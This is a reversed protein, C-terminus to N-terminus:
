PRLFRLVRDAAALRIRDVRTGTRAAARIARAEPALEVLDRVVADPDALPIGLAQDVADLRARYAKPDGVDGRLGAKPVEVARQERERPNM